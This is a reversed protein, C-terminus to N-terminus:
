VSGSDMHRISFFLLSGCNSPNKPDIFCEMLKWLNVWKLENRGLNKIAHFLNFGDIFCAVRAKKVLTLQNDSNVEM